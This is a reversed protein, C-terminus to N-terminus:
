VFFKNGNYSITIDDQFLKQNRNIFLKILNEKGKLLLQQFEETLAANELIYRIGDTAVGVFNYVIKSFYLSKPFVGEKYHTLYREDIFNYVLYEPYDPITNKLEIFEFTNDHKQLIVYGDGMYDVRFTDDGEICMVTTFCFHNLLFNTNETGCVITFGKIKVGLNELLEQMTVHFKYPLTNFLTMPHFLKVEYDKILKMMQHSYLKVGVESHKGQSCGDFVCNVNKYEFGYDQNNIGYDLHYQGIKNIFM